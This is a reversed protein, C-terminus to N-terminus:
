PLGTVVCHLLLLFALGVISRFGHQDPRMDGCLHVFSVQRKGLHEGSVEKDLMPNQIFRLQKHVIKYCGRAACDRVIQADPWTTRVDIHSYFIFTQRAYLPQLKHERWAKTGTADSMLETVTATWCTRSTCALFSLGNGRNWRSASALGATGGAIEWSAAAYM